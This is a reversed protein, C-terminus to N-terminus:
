VVVVVTSGDVVVWAGDVVCSDVVDDVAVVEEVTASVM